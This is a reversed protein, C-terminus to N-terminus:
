YVGAQSTNVDATRLMKHLADSVGDKAAMAVSKPDANAPVNVTIPADVHYTTSSQSGAGAASQANSVGGANTSGIAGINGMADATLAGLDPTTGKTLASGSPETPTDSFLGLKRLVGVSLGKITDIAQGIWTDKFNAGHWLAWLDHSAVIIGALAAAFVGVPTALLVSGFSALATSLAPFATATMEILVGLIAVLATQAIGALFVFAKWPSAIVKGLFGLVAVLNNIAGVFFEVISIATAIVKQAGTLGLSFGALALLAGGIIGILQQHSAVFGMVARTVTEFVGEVFGLAFTIGYVWKKFNLELVKRNAAWLSGLDKVMAKLSPAFYSAFTAATSKVILALGSFADELEALNEIGKDSVVAGMDAAEVMKARMGEGGQALFKTMNSSGRGLLQMTVQTRKIPDQISQIRDGLAQMADSADTFGAVQSPTIGVAAFAQTAEKSGDRAQAINRALKAMSGSLEEQGVANQSAAYAMKQFAESTIGAAVAASEISEGFHGFKETLEYISRVAETAALLELRSSMKELTHNIRELPETETHFSIRAVLDRLSAM